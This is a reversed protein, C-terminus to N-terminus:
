GDKFEGNAFKFGGEGLPLTNAFAGLFGDGAPPYLFKM